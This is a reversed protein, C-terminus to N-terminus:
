ASLGAQPPARGRRQRQCKCSATSQRGAKGAGRSAGARWKSVGSGAGRLPQYAGRQCFTLSSPMPCPAPQSQTPEAGDWNRDVRGLLTSYQLVGPAPAGSGRPQWSFWAAGASTSCCRAGISSELGWRLPAPGGREGIAALRAAAAAGHQLTRCGPSGRRRGTSHYAGTLCCAIRGRRRCCALSGSHHARRAAPYARGALSCAAPQPTAYMALLVPLAVTPSSL